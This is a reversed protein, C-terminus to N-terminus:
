IDFPQYIAGLPVARSAGTVSPINGPRGALRERALWAFATAEVFDANLGHSDTPEVPIGGLAVELATMLTRNRAGGGCVLVREAEARQVESAISQATLALLTAQVDQPALPRDGLKSKLWSLNFHERGTSRPPPKRFFPDALFHALLEEDVEGTAAWAGDQDFSNGRQGRIWADMLGNGPGTDYGTVTTGLRTINAIGGINVIARIEKPTTFMAAHFAPVLPAGEGGLAMDMRRFDAVTILGTDAAVRNPDGLQWTFGPAADPRHRITQGHCGVAAVQRKDIGADELLQNVARAYAAGLQVDAQGIVDLDANGPREILYQLTEHLSEPFPLTVAHAVRVGASFDALVADIGDLSTGSMLGVFHEPM